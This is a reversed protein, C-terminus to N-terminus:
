ETEMYYVGNMVKGILIAKGNKEIHCRGSGFVVRAGSEVVRQVSMLNCNLNPVLLVNKLKVEVSRGKVDFGTICGEGVGEIKAVKGDALYLEGSESQLKAFFSRDSTMHHSAGSDMVWGDPSVENTAMFCVSRHDTEKQIAVKAKSGGVTSERDIGQEAALRSLYVYCNRKIHGSKGCEFCVRREEWKESEERESQNWKRPKFAAAKMAKEEQRESKQLRKYYENHLKAKVVRETFKGDCGEVMAVFSDYSEPLSAMIFSCKMEESIDCGAEMLKDFLGDMEVLHEEVNGGEEMELRCLRKILGVRGANSQQVHYDRLINWTEQATKATKISQLRSNEVLYGITAAARQDKDIWADTRQRMPPLDDVVVRWLGERILIQKTREKWLDYNNFNLRITEAKLDMDITVSDVSKM